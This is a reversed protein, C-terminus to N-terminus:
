QPPQFGVSLLDVVRTLWGIRFEVIEDGIDARQLKKVPLYGAHACRCAPIGVVMFVGSVAESTRAVPWGRESSVRGNRRSLRSAFGGQPFPRLFGSTHPVAYLLVVGM